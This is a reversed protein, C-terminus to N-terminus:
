GMQRLKDIDGKMERYKDLDGKWKNKENWTWELTEGALKYALVYVHMHAHVCGREYKWLNLVFIKLM